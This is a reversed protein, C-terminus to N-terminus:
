GTKKRGGEGEGVEYGNELVYKLCDMHGQQCQTCVSMGKEHGVPMGKGACIEFMRFKPSLLVNTGAHGADLYSYNGKM